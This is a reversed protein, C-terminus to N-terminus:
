LAIFTKSHSRAWTEATSGSYGYITGFAPLNSLFYNPFIMSPNYVKVTTLSTCGNLYNRCCDIHPPAFDEPFVIETIQTNHGMIYAGYLGAKAVVNGLAGSNFSTLACYDFLYSSFSDTSYSINDFVVESLSTCHKFANATLTADTSIKVSTIGSCRIFANQDIMTVNSGITIATFGTCSDFCGNGLTTVPFGDIETPIVYSGSISPNCDYIVCETDDPTADAPRTAYLTNNRKWKLVLLSQPIPKLRQWCLQDGIYACNAPASGTIIDAADSIIPM